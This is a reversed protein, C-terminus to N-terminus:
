AFSVNTKTSRRRMAGGMLGFGLIMMGWTAPEPVAAVNFRVNDLVAYGGSQSVTVRNFADSGTLGFFSGTGSAVSVNYTGVLSSGNFLSVLFAANLGSQNGGGFNQFLDSGFATALSNLGITINGGLPLNLGLATTTNGSQGAGAIYLNNNTPASFTVGTPVGSCPGSSSVTQNASLSSASCGQFDVTTVTGAAANFATGSTYIVPAAFASGSVVAGALMTAAFLGKTITM